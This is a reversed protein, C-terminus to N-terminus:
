HHGGTGKQKTIIYILIEGADHPDVDTELDCVQTM